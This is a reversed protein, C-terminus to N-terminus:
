PRLSDYWRVATALKKNPKPPKVLAAYFADWDAPALVVTEHAGIIQEAAKLANHLVFESVSVSKYAAARELTRKAKADLRVHMRDRKLTTQAM